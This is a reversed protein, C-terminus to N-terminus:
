LIKSFEVYLRERDYELKSLQLEINKQAEHLGSKLRYDVARDIEAWQTLLQKRRNEIAMRIYQLQTHSSLQHWEPFTSLYEPNYEGMQIASSLSMSGSVGSPSGGGISQESEHKENSDM